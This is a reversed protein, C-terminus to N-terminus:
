LFDKKSVQHVHIGRERLGEVVDAPAKEDTILHTLKELTCSTFSSNHGIKTHDALIYTTGHVRSIMLENINVENAIETTMGCELSFGSCGIFSKKAFVTQLNRIAFDGVMAEKPYRLEGGTLIISVGPAHDTSLAKGNNTIVTVNQSKVYKLLQLANRSTNIFLSDGDSVLTAAYKAILTRYVDVDSVAGESSAGQTSSAGGYFRNIKKQDELYQLDRRITIVSVGLLQALEDVKVQPSEQMKELITNRRHDVFTKERKM